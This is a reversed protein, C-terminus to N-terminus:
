SCSPLPHYGDELYGIRRAIHAALAADVRHATHVALPHPDTPTVWAWASLELRISAPAPIRGTFLYM